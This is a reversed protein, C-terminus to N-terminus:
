RLEVTSPSSIAPGSGKDREYRVRQVLAQCISTRPEVDHIKKFWDVAEKAFDVDFAERALADGTIVLPAKVLCEEVSFANSTVARKGRVRGAWFCCLLFEFPKPLVSSSVVINRQFAFCKACM